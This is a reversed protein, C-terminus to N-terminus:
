HSACRPSQIASALWTSFNQFLLKGLTQDPEVEFSVQLLHHDRDGVHVKVVLVLVEAASVAQDDSGECVSTVDRQRLHCVCSQRSLTMISSRCPRPMHMPPAGAPGAPVPLVSVTLSMAFTLM